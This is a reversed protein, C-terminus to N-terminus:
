REHYRLGGVLRPRTHGLQHFRDIQGIGSRKGGRRGFEVDEHLLHFLSPLPRPTRRIARRSQGGHGLHRRGGNRRSSELVQECRLGAGEFPQAILGRPGQRREEGAADGRVGEVVRQVLQPGDGILQGDRMDGGVGHVLNHCAVHPGVLNLVYFLRLSAPLRGHPRHGRDHEGDGLALDDHTLAFRHRSLLHQREPRQAEGAGPVPPLYPQADEQDDQQLHRDERAQEVAEVHDRLRGFVAVDHKQGQHKQQQSARDDGSQQDDM